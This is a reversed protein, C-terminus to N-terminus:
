QETVLRTQSKTVGHVIAPLAERGRVMEWLKGGLDLANSKLSAM